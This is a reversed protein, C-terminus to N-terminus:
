KLLYTPLYTLLYSLLYTPLFYSPSTSSTGRASAALPSAHVIPQTAPLQRCSPPPPPAVTPPSVRAGLDTAGRKGRRARKHLSCGSGSTSSTSCCAPSARSRRTSSGYSGSHPCVPDRRRQKHPPQACARARTPGLPGRAVALSLHHRRRVPRRPREASRKYILTAIASVMLGVQVLIAFTGGLLSCREPQALLEQEVIATMVAPAPATSLSLAADTM